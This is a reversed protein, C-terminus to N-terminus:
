DALALNFLTTRRMKQLATRAEDLTRCTELITRFCLAYPVGWPDFRRVFLPAQYVELVALALGAANMGSLVGVLGPFGVSVFPLKGEPRYITVLGYEHAFGESPYDLNRALFPHGTMSRSSDVLLASCALIKKIDFLTNGLIMQRSDVKASDIIAEMEHRYDAPFRKVMSSGLRVILPAMWGACFKKLLEGPYAAMRPAHKLALDGIAEGMQRPSGAVSLVPRDERYRLEGHPHRGEPYRFSSSGSNQM